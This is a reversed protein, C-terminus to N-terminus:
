EHGKKAPNVYEYINTIDGIPAPPPNKIAEYIEDTTIEVKPVPDYGMGTCVFSKSPDKKPGVYIM